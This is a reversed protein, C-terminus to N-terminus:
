RRSCSGNEAAQCADAGDNAGVLARRGEDALEGDNTPFADFGMARVASGSSVVAPQQRIEASHGTRDVLRVAFSGPLAPAPMDAKVIPTREATQECSRCSVIPCVHEVIKLQPPTVVVERRVQTSMEHMDGACVPCRCQAETLPYHITEVPLGELKAEREGKVKTRRTRVVTELEPEAEEPKAEAEIENFLTLQDPHTQESSSGFRKLKALRHQEEYWHLQATVSMLNQELETNRQQLETNQQVVEDYTAETNKVRMELGPFNSFLGDTGAARTPSETFM